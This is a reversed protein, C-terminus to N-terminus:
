SQNRWQNTSSKDFLTHNVHGRDNMLDYELSPMPREESSPNGLSSAIRPEELVRCAELSRYMVEVTSREVNPTQSRNNGSLLLIKFMVRIIAHARITKSKSTRWYDDAARESRSFAAEQFQSQMVFVSVNYHVIQVSPEAQNQQPSSAVDKTWWGSLRCCTSCGRCKRRELQWISPLLILYEGICVLKAPSWYHSVIRDM